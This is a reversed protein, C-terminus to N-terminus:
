SHGSDIPHLPADNKEGSIYKTDDHRAFLHSLATYSRRHDHGDCHGDRRSNPQTAWLAANIIQRIEDFREQLSRGGRM